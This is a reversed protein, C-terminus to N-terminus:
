GRRSRSLWFKIRRNRGAIPPRWSRHFRTHLNISLTINRRLSVRNQIRSMINGGLTVVKQLANSQSFALMAGYVIKRGTENEGDIACWLKSRLNQRKHDEVVYSAHWTIPVRRTEVQAKVVIPDPIKAPLRLIEKRKNADMGFLAEYINQTEEDPCYTLVRKHYQMFMLDREINSNSGLGKFYKIEYDAERNTKAWEDYEGQSYFPIIARTRKHQATRLPTIFRKIYGDRLLNPWFLVFINIILPFIFGEGHHDQDVAGVISGYKLNAMERKYNLTDNRDYKAGITLGTVFLFVKFWINKALKEALVYTTDGNSDTIMEILKRANIIVGRLTLIGM